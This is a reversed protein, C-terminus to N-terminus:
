KLASPRMYHSNGVTAGLFPPAMKVGEHEETLLTSDYVRVANLDKDSAYEVATLIPLNYQIPQGLLNRKFVRWPGTVAVARVKGVELNQEARKNEERQLFQIAISALKDVDDPANDAHGPWTAKGIKAQLDKTDQKIWADLGANFAKVSANDPDLRGAVAGWARIREHQKRRAFDGIGRSTQEKMDSARRILDEAMVTRTKKVNDIGESLSTYPFSARGQGTYGMAEAKQDIQDRTSGYKGAFTNMAATLRALDNKEFDDIQVLLEEVPALDNYHMVYGTAKAFLPEVRKYAGRLAEVDADVEKASASAATRAEAYQQKAEEVRKGAAVLDAEVRDLDPHSTVGKKAALAKAEDLAARAQALATDMNGVLQAKNFTSKPDLLREIYRQIRDIQTGAKSLPLSAEHPLKTAAAAAQAPPAPVATDASPTHVGAAAPVPAPREAMPPAKPKPPLPRQSGTEVATLTGGGLDRGTRRELDKVLKKYKNEASTLGPSDPDSAKLEILRTRIPELALVAKDTKGGFMDREAQRLEQNVQKLLDEADAAWAVQGVPLLLGFAIATALGFLRARGKKRDM